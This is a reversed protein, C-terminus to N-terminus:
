RKWLNNHKNVYLQYEHRINYRGTNLKEWNLLCHHEASPSSNAQQGTDDTTLELKAMGDTRADRGAFRCYPGGPFIM